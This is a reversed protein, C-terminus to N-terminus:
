CFFNYESLLMLPLYCCLRVRVAPLNQTKQLDLHQRKLHKLVDALADSLSDITDDLKNLSAM